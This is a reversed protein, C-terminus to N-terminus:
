LEIKSAPPPSDNNAQGAFDQRLPTTPQEPKISIKSVPKNGTEKNRLEKTERNITSLHQGQGTTLKARSSPNNAQGSSVQPSGTSGTSPTTPKKGGYMKMFGVPDKIAQRLSANILYLEGLLSYVSELGSTTIRPGVRIKQLDAKINDPLESVKRDSFPELKEVLSTNFELNKQWFEQNTM